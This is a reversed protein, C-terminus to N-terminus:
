SVGPARRPFARGQPAAITVDSPFSACVVANAGIVVRDGIELNGVVKAGPGVYVDDGLIADGTISSSPLIQCRAGVRVTSAVMITGWHPINLGPGFTNPSIDFGLGAGMRRLRWRCFRVYPAWVRGTKCNTVYELHRLRRQYRLTPRNLLHWPSLKKVGHAALDEALYRVYDARSRIPM